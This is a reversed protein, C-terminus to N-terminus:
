SLIFTKRLVMSYEMVILTKDIHEGVFLSLSSTLKGENEEYKKKGKSWKHPSDKHPKTNLCEYVLGIRDSGSVNMSPFSLHCQTGKVRKAATLNKRQVEILAMQHDCEQEAEDQQSKTLAVSNITIGGLQVYGLKM